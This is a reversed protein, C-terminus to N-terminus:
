RRQRDRRERERGEMGERSGGVGTRKGKEEGRRKKCMLVKPKSGDKGTGRDVDWVMGLLKDPKAEGTDKM